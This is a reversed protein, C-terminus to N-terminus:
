QYQYELTVGYTLPDGFTAVGYSFGLQDFQTQRINGIYYEEDLLNKGWLMVKLQGYDQGLQIQSLTLNAGLLTREDLYGTPVTVGSNTSDQYLVNINANFLGFSLPRTYELSLTASHKPALALDDTLTDTIISTGDPSNADLALYSVSSPGFSTDLYGYNLSATIEDTIAASIDWELGKINADDINIFDREGANNGTPVSQQYDDYEMYFLAGNIRLRGNLLDGKYGIEYSVLDEEDFGMEFNARSTSRQSTGGSKYASVAKAYVNSFENLDYQVTVSPNFKSFDKDYKARFPAIGNPQGLSFSVRNNDRTAKRSDDSYRAGLTFHWRDNLAAPTWTAQGFVAASSNKTKTFDVLV